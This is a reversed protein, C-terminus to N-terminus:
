DAVAIEGSILKPLLTDRLVSLIENQKINAEYQNMLTEVTDEFEAFEVDTPIYVSINKIDTQTILPQTSGRNMGTFDTNSLIQYVLEYKESKLVLSNDSPWCPRNYRQIIGHTGVRGTVLIKESYLVQNTYGMISAAGLIPITAESTKEALKLQPRKGSTVTAIEGLTGNPKSNGFRNQFITSATEALHHNVM